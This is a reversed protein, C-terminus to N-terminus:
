EEATVQLRGLARLTLYGLLLFAGLLVTVGWARPHSAPHLLTGLIDYALSFPNTLIDWSNWRLFRGLYVGYSSLTLAVTSFVWGTAWGLREEVFRQMDLLSAYGLMLGNWGATLILTLDYWRPVGPYQGLHLLDTLIYPANPFFLLWLLGVPLLWRRRANPTLLGLLLSLGLPIAALFLNWLLFVFTIHHTWFVRFVILVTSLALSAGLILVLGFRQRLLSSAAPSLTAM